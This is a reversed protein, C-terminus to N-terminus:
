IANFKEVTMTRILIELKKRSDLSKPFFVLRKFLIESILLLMYVYVSELIISVRKNPLMKILWKSLFPIKLAIIVNTTKDFSEIVKEEIRVLTQSFPSCTSHIVLKLFRVQIKGM